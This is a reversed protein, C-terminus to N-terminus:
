IKGRGRKKPLDLEGGGAFDGMLPFEKSIESQTEFREATEKRAKEAWMDLDTEKDFKEKSDLIGKVLDILKKSVIFGVSLLVVALIIPWVSDIFTQFKGGLSTAFEGATSTSIITM